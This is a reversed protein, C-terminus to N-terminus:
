SEWLVCLLLCRVQIDVDTEEFPKPTYEEWVLQGKVSDKNKAVWGEFKYSESLTM